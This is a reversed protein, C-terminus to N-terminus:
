KYQAIYNKLKQKNADSFQDIKAKNKIFVFTPMMTVNYKKALPKLTDCNVKVFIVTTDQSMKEFTSAFAKCPGCWPAYFDVVILTKQNAELLADFQSVSTIEIVQALVVSSVSMLATLALTRVALKM